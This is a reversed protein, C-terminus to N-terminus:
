RLFRPRRAVGGSPVVEAKLDSGPVHELQVLDSVQRRNCNSIVFSFSLGRTASERSADVRQVGTRWLDEAAGAAARHGIRTAAVIRPM